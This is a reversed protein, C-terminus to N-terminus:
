PNVRVKKYRKTRKLESKSFWIGHSWVGKVVVCASDDSSRTVYGSKGAWKGSVLRVRDHRQIDEM